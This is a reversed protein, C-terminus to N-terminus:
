LLREVLGVLAKDAGPVGRFGPFANVDVVLPGHESVLLDVGYLRLDFISGIELTIGIWEKPIKDVALPIDEKSVRSILPTRRRAAFIRQDIIWLKIDWGDSVIFDQILLPEKSWKSALAQLDQMSNVKDVLDGRYSYHSKIILPFTLTSLVGAQALLNELSPFYQTHPMPLDAESMRQSMLTRDQCAVSSAWSNIVLSDRKELSYAVELAQPAHSKLLYLDAQPHTQEQAIAQEGTLTRVDLLRVNHKERLKQLVAGITPHHPTKPNDMILCINMRFRREASSASLKNEKTTQYRPKDFKAQVLRKDQARKVTHLIYEAVRRVAGPVHGFSPFDNIDLVALGQPTEVVDIGYIDLGFIKGIDLALKRLEPTLPVLKETIDGHLPSKKAVAYAERGTIYVKIDFGTNELYRQALFFRMNEEAIVLADLDAPSNVRYIDRCSSGNNPKVVIPYVELPIQKLLRPHAVFYTLPMPLNHAHAYTAAVAKNRVLRIAHTKNITTIGMAEAAELISLGPGDSVTKLVYADYGHLHMDSLCVATEQPELLDVIHGWQVLQDAVVMPMLNDRYEKEIIFCFRM